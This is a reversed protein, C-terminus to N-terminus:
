LIQSLLGNLYDSYPDLNVNVGENDQRFLFLKEWKVSISM